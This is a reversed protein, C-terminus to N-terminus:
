PRKLAAVTEQLRLRWTEILGDTQDGPAVVPLRLPAGFRIAVPVRRIRTSWRPMLGYAGSIGVPVVPAGAALMLRVTTRKFPQMREDWCREGEPFLGLVRGRGLIRLANRVATADTTYRRVPFAGAWRLIRFLAPHAFQSNKTMFAVPRPTLAALLIADLFSSHNAALIVPGSPPLHSRGEIGLPLVAQLFFGVLARVTELGFGSSPWRCSPVSLPRRGTGASGPVVPSRDQVFRLRPCFEKIDRPRYFRRLARDLADEWRKGTGRPFDFFLVGHSRSDVIVTHSEITVARIRDLGITAPEGGPGEIELRDALLKLRTGGLPRRGYFVAKLGAGLSRVGERREGSVQVRASTLGEEPLRDQRRVAAYWGAVTDTEGAITVTSRNRGVTVSAGCVRCRGGELWPEAGCLPCRYLLRQIM